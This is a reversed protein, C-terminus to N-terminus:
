RDWRWRKLLKLQESKGSIKLSKSVNSASVAASESAVLFRKKKPPFTAGYPKTSLGRIAAIAPGAPRSVNVPVPSTATVLYTLLVSLPMENRIGNTILVSTNAPVAPPNSLSYNLLIDRFNLSM